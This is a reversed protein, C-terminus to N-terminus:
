PLAASYGDNHVSGDHAGDSCAGAGFFLINRDRLRSDSCKTVLACDNASRRWGTLSVQIEMGVVKLPFSVHLCCAHV